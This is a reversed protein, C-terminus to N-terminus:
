IEVIKKQKKKEKNDFTKMIQIKKALPEFTTGMPYMLFYYYHSIQYIIVPKDYLTYATNDINICVMRNDYFQIKVNLIRSVLRLVFEIPYENPLAHAKRIDQLFSDYSQRIDNSMAVLMYSTELDTDNCKDFIGVDMRSKEMLDAIMDALDDTNNVLKHMVFPLLIYEFPNEPYLAMGIINANNTANEKQKNKWFNHCKYLDSEDSKLWFAYKKSELKHESDYLFNDYQSIWLIKQKNIEDPSIEKMMQLVFDDIADSPHEVLQQVDTNKEVLSLLENEPLIDELFNEALFNITNLKSMAMNNTDDMIKKVITGFFHYNDEFFNKSFAIRYRALIKIYYKCNLTQHLYEIFKSTFYSIKKPDNIDDLTTIIRIIFNAIETYFEELFSNFGESKISPLSTKDLMLSDMKENILKSFEPIFHTHIIHECFEVTFINIMKLILFLSDLKKPGFELVKTIDFKEFVSLIDLQAIFYEMEEMNIPFLDISRFWTTNEMEKLVVKRQKKDNNPIDYLDWFFNDDNTEDDM